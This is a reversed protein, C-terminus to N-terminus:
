RGSAARFHTRVDQAQADTLKWRAGRDHGDSHKDRLYARITRGSMGLERALDEPTIQDTM